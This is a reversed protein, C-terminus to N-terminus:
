PRGLGSAFPSCWHLVCLDGIELGSQAALDDLGGILAVVLGTREIVAHDVLARAQDRVAGIYRIDDAGHVESAVVAQEDGNAAAAVVARPETRAVVSQNDVEGGHLTHPDIRGAARHPDPWAAGLAVDIVRGLPIPRFVESRKDGFFSPSANGPQPYAAARGNTAFASHNHGIMPM